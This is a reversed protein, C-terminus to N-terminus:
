RKTLENYISYTALYGAIFFFIDVALPAQLIWILKFDKEMKPIDYFNEIVPGGSIYLYSHGLM